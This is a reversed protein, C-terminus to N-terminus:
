GSGTIQAYFDEQQNAKGTYGNWSASCVSKWLPLGGLDLDQPQFSVQHPTMQVM